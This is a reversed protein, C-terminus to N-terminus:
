ENYAADDAVVPEAKLEAATNADRTVTADVVAAANLTAHTTADETSKQTEPGGLGTHSDHEAKVENWIKGFHGDSRCLGRLSLYFDTSIEAMSLANVEPIKSLADAVRNSSGKRYRIEFDFEQMLEVWRAKRDRLDGQDYIYRLSHHNTWAVFTSGYLYHRWKRLAHVVAYLEKEYTPYRMEADSLKKSEFAVPRGDQYLAAGIAYDSADTEVVFPKSPDVIHLIPTTTVLHKLTRFSEDLRENWVVPPNGKRHPASTKPVKVGGKLLQTLPAAVKSYDKIFKRFFGTFSPRVFGGDLYDKLQRRIEDEETKSFRYPQKSFPQSGNVLEIGHDVGRSPPLGPPLDDPFVDEFNTVIERILNSEDSHGLEVSSCLVASTSLFTRFGRNMMSGMSILTHPGSTCGLETCEKEEGSFNTTKYPITTTPDGQSHGFAAIQM